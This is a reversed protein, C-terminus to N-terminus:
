EADKSWQEQMWLDSCYLRLFVQALRSILDLGIKALSSTQERAIVLSYIRQQGTRTSMWTNKANTEHNSSPDLGALKGISHPTTEVSEQYGDKRRCFIVSIALSYTCLTIIGRDLMKSIGIQIINPHQIFQHKTKFILSTYLLFM